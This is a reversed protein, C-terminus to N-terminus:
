ELVELEGELVLRDDDDDTTATVKLVYVTAATGDAAARFGLKSNDEDVEPDPDITLAGDDDGLIEISGGTLTSGGTRIEPFKSFDFWLKRSEGVYKEHRERLPNQAQSM